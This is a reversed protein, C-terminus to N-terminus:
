GDGPLLDDSDYVDAELGEPEPLLAPPLVLGLVETLTDRLKRQQGPGVLSLVKRYLDAGQQGTVGEFQPLLYSYFLQFALDESSTNTEDELYERSFAAMDIFVAPGIDKVACLRLLGALVRDIDQFREAPLGTLKRRWVETFVHKPPSPVEIFAFRRMLAFSMEFLLSKDFVNMTAVIRWRRPIELIAYDPAEYGGAAGELVLAVPRGNAPDEYPLVVSQGSLVTFLQGFARDFNSRNLEDVVLWRGAQIADLFLGKRFELGRGFADPRLGGITEYTTWDATATTLVYASSHGADSALQCTLEALTTKATGPPGTLIVHKGSRIAAIIARYVHQGIELGAAAAMQALSSADFVAFPEASVVTGDDLQDPQPQVPTGIDCYEFLPAAADAVQLVVDNIHRGLRELEDVRIYLSISAQAGDPSAAYALWEALTEFDSPDAPELWSRRYAVGKPLARNVADIVEAPVSGLRAKLQKFAEEAVARDDAKLLSRGAGVCLCVEAGRASIILAVQLAYSKNPANATYICCWLINQVWGNSQYRSTFPRVSVKAKIKSAVWAALESLRGQIDKLLAQDESSINKKNWPTGKPYRGLVECDPRRFGAIPAHLEAKAPKADASAPSVTFGLAQLRAKTPNGGSFNNPLPGLEPYEFGHAAALLAKSDYERGDHVVVFKTARKFGYKALFAPRDLEDQERMARFVAERSTIDRLGM